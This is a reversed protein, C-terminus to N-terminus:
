KQADVYSRLVANMLSQYGKGQKRFWNVVDDDIRISLPQKSPPIRITANEWFDDPLEPIDSCDIDEDRMALLEENSKQKISKM